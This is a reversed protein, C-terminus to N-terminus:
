ETRTGLVPEGLAFIVTWDALVLAVGPVEALVAGATLLKSYEAEPEPVPTVGV